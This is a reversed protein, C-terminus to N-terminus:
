MGAGRVDYRLVNFRLTLTEFVGNWSELSGGMEHILVLVPADGSLASWQFRISVGNVEAWDLNSTEGFRLSM